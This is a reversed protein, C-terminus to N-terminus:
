TPWTSTSPWAGGAAGANSLAEPRTPASPSPWAGAPATIPLSSSVSPDAAPWAAAPSATPLPLVTEPGATPLGPVAEPGATIPLSSSVGPVATPWSGAPAATPLGPVAEPGATIPLSSSVGPDAAPWSGAPAAAPLGPVATIPLSSSVGPDAAPWSSAPAATPLGPVATIPLSSSVGPDAAPWAGAPAATPLSPVAEPGAPSPSPWPVAAAASSATPAIERNATLPSPSSAGGPYPSPWAVSAGLSNSPPLPPVAKAAAPHEEQKTTVLPEGLRPSRPPWHAAIEAVKLPPPILVQLNSFASVSAAVPQQTAPPSTAPVPDDLAVDAIAVAGGDSPWSTRQPCAADTTLVAPSSACPPLVAAPDVLSPMVVEQSKSSKPTEEDSSSSRFVVTRCPKIITAKRKSSREAQEDDAAAEAAVSAQASSAAPVGGDSPWSTRQPCAADTTLVAPSSACPPLVAAPDVLSPMVVEQSKSSKPTEEDSSSSRFVVTRCPKIITAKRKSSREAQEDDAAAEAAVSAQASSAASVGGSDSQVASAPPKAARLAPQSAWPPDHSRPSLAAVPGIWASLDGDVSLSARRAPSTAGFWTSVDDSISPPPERASQSGLKGASAPGGIWSSVDGGFTSAPQQAPPPSWRSLPESESGISPSAGAAGTPVQSSNAPGSSYSSGVFQVSAQDTVAGRGEATKKDEPAAGAQTRRVAADYMAQGASPGSLTFQAAVPHHDSTFMLRPFSTYELLEAEAGYKAQYVVRDCWAPVRKTDLETTGPRYKYTPPFHVVGERFGRLGPALGLLLQDFRLWETQPPGTLNAAETNELRSNFDGFIVTFHHKAAQYRSQRQFGRKARRRAGRVVSIGQFADALIQTIHQNRESSANQGSALHVNMVCVSIDGLYWRACVCGKNGGVGDLGTKVRDCDLEDVFPILGERVYVLLALGVMGFSCIKTFDERHGSGEKQRLKRLADEVRAELAAQKYDDGCANLVFASATLEVLEQVGVVYIDAIGGKGDGDAALWAPLDDGSAIPTGKLNWSCVRIDVPPLPKRPGKPKPKAQEPTQPLQRRSSLGAGTWPAAFGPLAEASRASVQSTAFAQAQNAVRAQLQGVNLQVHGAQQEAKAKLTLVNTQVQSKAVDVARLARSAADSFIPPATRKDSLWQGQM